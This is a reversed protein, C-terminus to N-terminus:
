LHVVNGVAIAIAAVETAALGGARHPADRGALAIQEGFSEIGPAHRGDEDLRDLTLAAIDHWRGSVELCQALQAVAVADQEHAVLDLAADAPGSAHEGALVLADLGVNQERRLAEAAAHGDARDDRFLRDHFPLRARVAAREAAVGHAAGRREGRQVDHLALQQGLDRRQTLSQERTRLAQLLLVRRDALYTAAAQHDADLEDLIALGALRRGLDGVLQHLPRELPAQQQEAGPLAREAEGRRQHDVLVVHVGRQPDNVRAQPLHRVLRWRDDTM